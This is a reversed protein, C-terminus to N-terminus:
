CNLPNWFNSTEVDLAAEAQKNKNGIKVAEAYGRSQRKKTQTRPFQWPQESFAARQNTSRKDGFGSRQNTSPQDSHSNTRQYKQQPCNTECFPYKIIPKIVQIARYTFHRGASKGRLHVGDNRADDPNGFILHKLYNSASCKLDIDVIQIKGPRGRKLLLQDYVSNGYESLDSRITSLEDPAGPVDDFRPLRKMIVVKEIKEDQALAAEAIDILKTSDEEIKKFWEKKYKSLNEPTSKFAEDINLDTIEISGTQLILIDTEDEALVQPVVAKFNSEKYRAKDEEDICYAKVMKLDIDCEREFKKKDMVNSISTGIWTVRKIGVRRKQKKDKKRENQKPVVQPVEVHAELKEELTSSKPTVNSQGDDKENNHKIQGDIEEFKEDLKMSLNSFADENAKASDRIEQGVGVFCAEMVKAFEVMSNKLDNRLTEVEQIIDINQEAILALVM